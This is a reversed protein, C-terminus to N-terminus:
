AVGVNGRGKPLPRRLAGPSPTSQLASGYGAGEGRGEEWPSLPSQLKLKTSM